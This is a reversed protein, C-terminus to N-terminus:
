SNKNVCRISKNFVSFSSGHGFCEPPKIECEPFCWLSLSGARPIWRVNERNLVFAPLHLAFGQQRTTYADEREKGPLWCDQCKSLQNIKGRGRLQFEWGPEDTVRAKILLPNLHKRDSATLSSTPKLHFAGGYEQSLWPLLQARVSARLLPPSVFFSLILQLIHLSSIPPCTFSFNALM